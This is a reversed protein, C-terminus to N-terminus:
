KLDSLHWLENISLDLILNVTFQCIASQVEHCLKGKVHVQQKCNM